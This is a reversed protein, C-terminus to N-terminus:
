QAISVHQWICACLFVLMVCGCRQDAWRCAHVRGFRAMRDQLAFQSADLPLGRVFVTAGEANQQAGGSM